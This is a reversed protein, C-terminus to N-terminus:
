RQLLDVAAIALILGVGGIAEMETSDWDEPDVILRKGVLSCSIM